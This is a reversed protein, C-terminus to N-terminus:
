TLHMVIPICILNTTILRIFCSTGLVQVVFPDFTIANEFYFIAAVLTTLVHISPDSVAITDVSVFVLKHDHPSQFCSAVHTQIDFREFTIANEFIFSPPSVHISPDSVVITDVSIFVLKHDHPPQFL